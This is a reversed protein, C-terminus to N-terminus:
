KSRAAADAGVPDGEAGSDTKGLERLVRTALQNGRAVASVRDRESRGADIGRWLQEILTRISRWVDENWERIDGLRKVLMTDEAALRPADIKTIKEGNKLWERLLSNVVRNFPLDINLCQQWVDREIDADLRVKTGKPQAM